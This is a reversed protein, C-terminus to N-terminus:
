KKVQKIAQNLASQYDKLNDNGRLEQIVEGTAPNIIAVLSTQAKNTQFFKSLGLQKARTQASKTTGRDSVDLMVFNVKGDYQQKIKSLTPAISQCVPCWSAYIDVVVPKGQLEDALATKHSMMMSDQAMMMSGSPKAIAQTGIALLGITTMTLGLYKMHDHM